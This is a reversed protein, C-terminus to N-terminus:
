DEEEITVYWTEDVKDVHVKCRLWAALGGAVGDVYCKEEHGEALQVMMDVSEFTDLDEIVIKLM